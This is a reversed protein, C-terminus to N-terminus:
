PRWYEPKKWHNNRWVRIAADLEKRSVGEITVGGDLVRKLGLLAWELTEMIGKCGECRSSGCNSCDEDFDGYGCGM